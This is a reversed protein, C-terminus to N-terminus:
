EGVGVDDGDDGGGVQRGEGAVVRRGVAGAEEQGGLADRVHALGDGGHEGLVGGVGLEGGVQDLDVPLRELGDDVRHGREGGASGRDAGLPTIRGRRGVVGGIRGGSGSVQEASPVDT